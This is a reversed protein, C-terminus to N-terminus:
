AINKNRRRQKEKKKKFTLFVLTHYLSGKMKIELVLM